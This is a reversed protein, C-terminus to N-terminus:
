DSCGIRYQLTDSAMAAARSTYLDSPAAVPTMYPDSAHEALWTYFWYVVAWAGVEDLTADNGSSCTHPIGGAHRAEHLLLDVLYVLGWAQNRDRDFWLTNGLASLDQDAKIVLVGPQDCCYSSPAARFTIGKVELVFWDFLTLETWPLPADFPIRRMSLVAQYAREQLFTLDASGADDTCILAPATSDYEFTMTVVSDVLAIEDSTPCRALAADLTADQPIM